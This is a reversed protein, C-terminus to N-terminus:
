YFDSLESFDHKEEVDITDERDFTGFEEYDSRFECRLSAGIGGFGQCFQKGESSNSSILELKCGQDQHHEILFDLLSQKEVVDGQYIGPRVYAVGRETVIRELDLDESVILKKVIGMEFTEMVDYPGYSVCHDNLRVKELFDLVHKREREYELDSILSGSLDITQSLGIEGGYAIDVSGLYIKQLRPDLWGSELFKQKLHGSGGIVLGTINPVENEIFVKTSAEGVVKVYGHIAIDRLNAFRVSSQGGKNHKRPLDPDHIMKLIKKQKGSLTAFLSGDGNLVIFGYTTSSGNVAKMLEEPHFKNDCLYMFSLIPSLPEFSYSIKKTKGKSSKNDAVLGCFLALGNKPITKLLKLEYLTSTM